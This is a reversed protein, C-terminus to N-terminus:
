KDGDKKPVVGTMVERMTSTMADKYKTMNKSIADQIAKRTKEEAKLRDAETQKQLVEKSKEPDDGIVNTEQKTDVIDKITEHWM